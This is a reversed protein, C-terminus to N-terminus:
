RSAFKIAHQSVYKSEDIVAYIINDIFKESFEMRTIEGELAKLFDFINNFGYKRWLLIEGTIDFYEKELSSQKVGPASILVSRLLQKVKDDIRSM